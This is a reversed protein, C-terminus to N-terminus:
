EYCGKGEGGCVFRSKWKESGRINNLTRAQKEYQGKVKEMKGELYKNRELMSWLAMDGNHSM